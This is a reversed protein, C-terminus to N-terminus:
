YLRPTGWKAPEFARSTEKKETMLPTTHVKGNSRQENSGMKQFIISCIIKGPGSEQQNKPLLHWCSTHGHIFHYLLLKDLTSWLKRDVESPNVRRSLNGNENFGGQLLSVQFFGPVEVELLSVPTPTTQTKLQPSHTLRDESLVLVIPVM